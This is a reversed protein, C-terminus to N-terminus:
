DSDSSTSVESESSPPTPPSKVKWKFRKDKKSRTATKRKPQPCRRHQSATAPAKHKEDLCLKQYLMKRLLRDTQEQTLDPSFQDRNDEVTEVLSATLMPQLRKIPPPSQVENRCAADTNPVYPEIVGERVLKAYLPTGYHIMRNTLPNKIKIITQHEAM